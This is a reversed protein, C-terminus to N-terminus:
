ALAVGEKSECLSCVRQLDQFTRAIRSVGDLGLDLTAWETLLLDASGPGLSALRHLDSASLGLDRAIREVEEEGCCKLETLSGSRTGLRLRPIQRFPNRLAM